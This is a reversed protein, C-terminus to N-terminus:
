HTFEGWAVHGTTHLNPNWNITPKFLKMFWGGTMVMKIPPLGKGTMPPKHCQKVWM